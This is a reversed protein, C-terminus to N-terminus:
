LIVKQSRDGMVNITLRPHYFMFANSRGLNAVENGIQNKYNSSYRNRLLSDVQRRIKPNNKNFDM